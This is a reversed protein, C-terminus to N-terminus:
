VNLDLAFGLSKRELAPYVLWCGRMPHNSFDERMALPHNSRANFSGHGLTLNLTRM